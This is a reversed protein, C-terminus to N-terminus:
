QDRETSITNVLWITVEIRIFSTESTKVNLDSYFEHGLSCLFRVGLRSRYDEFYQM